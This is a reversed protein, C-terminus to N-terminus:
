QAPMIVKMAKMTAIAILIWHYKTGDKFEEASSEKSRVPPESGHYM